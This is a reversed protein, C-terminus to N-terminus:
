KKSLLWADDSQTRKIAHLTSLAERADTYSGYTVMHLGYDNTGLYESKYGQQQLQQMKKEANDMSRFAGAIIHHKTVAENKSLIDLTVTPLELPTSDFFTAEQIYRTVKQQAEQRAMQGVNKTEEYSRYATLGASLALLIVAAYKLYPRLTNSSRERQEPTIIFPIREELQSVEEKLVERTVPVSAIASLGFSSTLYNTKESPQFVMKGEGNLRLSGIHELLLREGLDLKQRWERVTESVKRLMEDYSVKHTEAMYSVLLGDNSTLQSNFSLVKAPPYLTNSGRDLVASRIQTLFAGFGPVVVCNYRYLLESIYHEM